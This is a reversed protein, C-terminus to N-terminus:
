QQKIRESFLTGKFLFCWFRICTAGRLPKLVGTPRVSGLGLSTGSARPPLTGQEGVAGISGSGLEEWGRHCGPLLLASALLVDYRVALWNEGTQRGIRAPLAWLFGLCSHGLINYQLWLMQLVVYVSQGVYFVPWPQPLFTLTSHSAEPPILYDNEWHKTSYSPLVTNYVPVDSLSNGSM